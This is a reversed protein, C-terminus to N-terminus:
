GREFLPPLNSWQQLCSKIYFKLLQAEALDKEAGFLDYRLNSVSGHRSIYSQGEFEYCIEKGEESIILTEGLM